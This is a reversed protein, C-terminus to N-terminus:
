PIVETTQTITNRPAVLNGVVISNILWFTDKSAGSKMEAAELTNILRPPLPTFTIREASLNSYTITDTINLVRGSVPGSFDSLSHKEQSAPSPPALHKLAM